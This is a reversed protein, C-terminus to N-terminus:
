SKQAVIIFTTCLFYGRWDRARDIEYAYTNRNFAELIEPSLNKMLPPWAHFKYFLMDKQTLGYAELDKGMTLPNDSRLYIEPRASFEIFEPADPNSIMGRLESRLQDMMDPPCDVESFFYDDFFQLTFRNFTTLDFLRNAYAGLYYGGPKLLQSVHRHATDTDEIYSVVGNTIVADWEQDAYRAITDPDLLDGVEFTDLPLGKQELKKKAQSIMGPSLDFGRVEMGAEILEMAPYATGCGIDLVRKCGLEQLVQCVLTARFRDGAYSEPTPVFTEEDYYDSHENYWNILAEKNHPKDSM